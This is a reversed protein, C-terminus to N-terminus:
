IVLMGTGTPIGAVTGAGFNPENNNEFLNHHVAHCEALQVPLSGDKFVLIGATNGAAYNGYVQANGCNEIEIAAVGQRVDNFRVVITSSQGVYIPADSHGVVRSLEVLVDNSRVPFVAYRTRRNGDGTIDRMSVGNAAAVFIHNARQNFFDLSQFLLGNVGNASFANGRTEPDPPLVRPRDDTAGGCGVIALDAKTVTVEEVYDGSAILLKDGPSALGVAAGIAGPGNPVFTGREAFQAEAVEFVADLGTCELCRQLDAVTKAGPCAFLSEIQGLDEADSCGKEINRDTKRFLREWENAAKPDTPPVWAGGAFSGICHPALDGPTGSKTEAKLCNVAAKAAGIFFQRGAKSVAKVCDAREKGTDPFPETTAGNSQASVLEAAVNHQSLMCSSVVGPDTVDAYSSGLGALVGEDGCANAIRKAALAAAKEIDATDGATPCAGAPGALKCAGLVKVKDRLFSIGARAIAAQCKRSPSAAATVPAPTRDPCSPAAAVAHPVAVGAAIALVAITRSM